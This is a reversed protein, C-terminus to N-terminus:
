CLAVVIYSLSSMKTIDKKLTRQNFPQETFTKESLVLTKVSLSFLQMPLDELCSRAELDTSGYAVDRPAPTKYKYVSMLDKGVMYVDGTSGRFTFRSPINPSTMGALFVDGLFSKSIQPLSGGPLVAVIVSGNMNFFVHTFCLHLIYFTLKELSNMTKM